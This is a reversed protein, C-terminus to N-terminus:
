LVFCHRIAIIGAGFLGILSATAPEPVAEITISNVTFHLSTTQSGLLIQGTAAYTGEYASFSDAPNVFSNPLFPDFMDPVSLDATLISMIEGDVIIGMSVDLATTCGLTVTGALDRTLYESMYDPESVPRSYTGSLGDGSIASWLFPDSPIEARWEHSWSSYNDNVSEIYGDNIVWTFTYSEGTAYGLWPSDATGTVRIAIPDALASTAAIMLIGICLKKM